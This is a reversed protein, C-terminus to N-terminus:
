IKNDIFIFKNLFSNDVYLNLISIIYIYYLIAFLIKYKKNDFYWTSRLYKNFM